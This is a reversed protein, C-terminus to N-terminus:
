VSALSIETVKGSALALAHGAGAVVADAWFGADVKITGAGTTTFVATLILSAPVEAPAQGIWAVRKSDAASVPDGVAPLFLFSGIANVEGGGYTLMGAPSLSASPTADVDMKVTVTHTGAGPVALDQLIRAYSVARAAGVGLTHDLYAGAPSTELVDAKVSIVGTAADATETTANTASSDTLDQAVSHGVSKDTYNSTVANAGNGVLLTLALGAFALGRKAFRLM